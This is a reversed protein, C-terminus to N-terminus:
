CSRIGSTARKDEFEGTMLVEYEEIAMGATCRRDTAERKARVKEEETDKPTRQGGSM